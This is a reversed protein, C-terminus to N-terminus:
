TMDLRHRSTVFPIIVVKYHQRVSIDCGPVTTHYEARDCSEPLPDVLKQTSSGKILRANSLPAQVVLKFDNTQSPRSDFGARGFM